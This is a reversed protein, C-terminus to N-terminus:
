LNTFIKSKMEEQSGIIEVIASFRMNGQTFSM